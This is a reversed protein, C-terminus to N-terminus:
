VNKKKMSKSRRYWMYGGLVGAAAIGMWWRYSAKKNEPSLLIANKNGAKDYVAVVFPSSESQDQLVYTMGSRVAPRNGEAVEFHDIGSQRDVATITMFKKGDFVSNDQGITVSLDQPAENDKSVIDQWQNRPPASGKPGITVQLPTGSVDLLTARGDNDYAKLESPIFTVKGESKATVVIQFLLGAKGRFGGPVGGAFSIEKGEEFSPTKLWNELVSGALNFDKIEIAEAGSKILVAGEVTNPTKEATDLVLNILVTDGVAIIPYETTLSATAARAIQPLLVASCLFLLGLAWMNRWRNRM